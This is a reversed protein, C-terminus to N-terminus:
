PHAPAQIRERDGATYAGYMGSVVARVAALDAPTGGPRAGLPAPRAPPPPSAPM